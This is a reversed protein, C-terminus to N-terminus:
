RGARFLVHRIESSGEDVLVELMGTAKGRSAGISYMFHGAVGQPDAIRSGSRVTELIAQSPIFERVGGRKLQDAVTRSTRLSGTADLLRDAVATGRVLPTAAKIALTEPGFLVGAAGMALGRIGEGIRNVSQALSEMAFAAAAEIVDPDFICPCLGFPDSFNIPDGGAYGYTNLGGAIGIPDTQTFLDWQLM